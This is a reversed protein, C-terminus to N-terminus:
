RVGQRYREEALAGILSQGTQVPSVAGSINIGGEIHIGSGGQVQPASAPAYASAPAVSMTGANIAAMIGDGYKRASPEQIVWEGVSAALHVSDSRSTGPGYVKGGYARGQALSDVWDRQAKTSTGAPFDDKNYRDFKVKVHTTVTSPVSDLLDKWTQVKKTPIGTAEIKTTVEPPIKMYKRLLKDVERESYGAEIASERLAAKGERIAKNGINYAEVTDKGAAKAQEVKANANALILSIESRLAERNSIAKSTAGLLADGNDKNAKALRDTSGILADASGAAALQAAIYGTLIDLAAQQAKNAKDLAGALEETAVGEVDVAQGAAKRSAIYTPLSGNLAEVSRGAATWEEVLRAYQAAAEAPATSTLYRDLAAFKPVLSSGASVDLRYSSSTPQADMGTARRTGLSDLVDLLSAGSKAAADFQGSLEETKSDRINDGVKDLAVFLAVVAATIATAKAAVMGLGQAGSARASAATLADTAETAAVTATRYNAMATRAASIGRVTGGVAPGLLAAAAAMGVLIATGAQVPEPLDAFAVALAGAAKAGKTMLPILSEGLEAKADTLAAQAKRQSNALGDSTRAFDGQADSTQALIEAQAALAKQQPTLADKTTSIIGMAMARQRLTADDLLVGYRRIPESEGRLAAGLAEMADEPSSNYFSALDSSLAVMDLSFKSLDDGTLGAAKGFTAMMSAADYAGRKSMGFAEASTEGFQEVDVSVEGFIVRMKSLSEQLDSAADVSEGLATLTKAGVATVATGVAAWAVANRASSRRLEGQARDVGSTADAAKKLERQYPRTDASVTVKVQEDPM